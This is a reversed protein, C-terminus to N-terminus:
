KKRMNRIMNNSPGMQIPKTKPAPRAEVAGTPEGSGVVGSNASTKPSPSAPTSRLDVVNTSQRKGKWVMEKLAELKEALQESERVAKAIGKLRKEIKKHHHDKADHLSKKTDSDNSARASNFYMAAFRSRSDVDNRAKSVYRKKMEASVEDIQELEEKTLKNIAKFIGKRRNNEKKRHIDFKKGNEDKVKDDQKSHGDIKNRTNAKSWMRVHDGMKEDHHLQSATAKKMYSSLTAKSLENIVEEKALRSALLDMGKTRRKLKKAHYKEAKKDDEIEDKPRTRFKKPSNGIMNGHTKGWVQRRYDDRETAHYGMYRHAKHGYAKLTEKSLEDLQEAEDIPKVKTGYHKKLTNFKEMHGSATLKKRASSDLNWSRSYALLTDQSADVKNGKLHHSHATNVAKEFRKRRIESNNVGEDMKQADRFKKEARKEKTTKLKEPYTGPGTRASSSTTVHSDHLKRKLSRIGRAITTGESLEEDGPSVLRCSCYGSSSYEFVVDINSPDKTVVRGDDTMGMKAGFQDAPVRIEGRSGNFALQAPLFIGYYALIKSAHNYCEAPSSGKVGDLAKNIMVRVQKNEIDIVGSPVNDTPTVEENILYSRFKKM